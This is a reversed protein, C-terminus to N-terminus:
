SCIHSDLSLAIEIRRGTGHSLGRISLLVVPGTHDTGHVELGCSTDRNGLTLSVVTRDGNQALGIDRSSGIFSPDPLM